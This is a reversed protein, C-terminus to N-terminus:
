PIEVQSIVKAELVADLRRVYSSETYDLCRTLVPVTSALKARAKEIAGEVTPAIVTVRAQREDFGPEPIEVDAVKGDPGAHCKLRNGNVPNIRSYLYHLEYLNM